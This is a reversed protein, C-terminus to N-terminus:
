LLPATYGPYRSIQIDRTCALRPHRQRVVLLAHARQSQVLRLVRECAAARVAHLLPSERVRFEEVREAVVVRDDVREREVLVAYENAGTSVREGARQGGWRRCGVM